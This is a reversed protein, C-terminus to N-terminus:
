RISKGDYLDKGEIVVRDYNQVTTGYFLKEKEPNQECVVYKSNTYLPLIERFELKGANVVFVGILTRSIEVENEDDKVNEKVIKEHLACKPIRLGSYTGFIIKLEERRSSLIEENLRDCKFIIIADHKNDKQNITEIKASMLESSISPVLLEIEKTQKFKLADDKKIKTVVYWNQDLVIKGITEKDDSYGSSLPIADFEDMSLNKVSDYDIYSEFGDSKKIFYGPVQTRVYKNIANESFQIKSKERELEEIESSFNPVQHTAIQRENVLYLFNDSDKKFDRLNRDNLNILMSKIKQSVQKDIALPNAVATESVENLQKLKEIQSDLNAVQDKKIIDQDDKYFAAITSDKAVKEGDKVFYTLIGSPTEKLVYEKRVFFSESVNIYDYIDDVWLVLETKVSSFLLGYVMYILHLFFLFGLIMVTFKIFLSNKLDKLM